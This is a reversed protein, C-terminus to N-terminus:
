CLTVAKLLKTHQADPRTHTDMFQVIQKVTTYILLIRDYCFRCYMGCPEVKSMLGHGAAKLPQAHVM